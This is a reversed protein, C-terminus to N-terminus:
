YSCWTEFSSIEDNWSGGLGLIGTHYNSFSEARAYGGKQVWFSLSSSRFGADKFFTVHYTSYGFSSSTGMKFTTAKDNFDKGVWDVKVSGTVSYTNGRFDKDAYLTLYSSTDGARLSNPNEIPKFHAQLDTFNDFYEIHDNQHIYTALTPISQLSQYLNNVIEDKLIISSDSSITYVSSYPIGKYTFNLLPLNLNETADHAKLDDVGEKECAVFFLCLGILSFLLTLKKM